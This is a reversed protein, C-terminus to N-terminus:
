ANTSIEMSQFLMSFDNFEGSSHIHFNKGDAINVPSGPGNFFSGMKDALSVRHDNGAVDRVGFRPGLCLINKPTQLLM